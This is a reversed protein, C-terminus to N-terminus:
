GDATAEDQLNTRSEASDDQPQAARWARPTMGEAKRFANTLHSQDYYGSRLAVEILSLEPDTLLEKARRLRAEQVYAWPSQGTAERFRRSFHYKSLHAREALEDIGGVADVHTDIYIRVAGIRTEVTLGAVEDSGGAAMTAPLIGAHQLLRYLSRVHGVYGPQFLPSKIATVITAQSTRMIEATNPHM